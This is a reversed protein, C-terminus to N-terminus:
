QYIKGVAATSSAYLAGPLCRKWEFQFPLFSLFLQLLSCVGRLILLQQWIVKESRDRSRTIRGKSQIPGRMESSPTTKSLSTRSDTAAGIKNKVGELLQELSNMLASRVKRILHSSSCSSDRSQRQCCVSFHMTTALAAAAAAAAPRRIGSTLNVLESDSAGRTPPAALLMVRVHTVGGGPDMFDSLKGGALLSFFVFDLRKGGKPQKSTKHNENLGKM